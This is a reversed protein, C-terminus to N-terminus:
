SEIKGTITDAKVCIFAFLTTKKLSKQFKDSPKISQFALATLSDKQQLEDFTYEAIVLRRRLPDDDNTNGTLIHELSYQNGTFVAFLLSLISIVIIFLWFRSLAM